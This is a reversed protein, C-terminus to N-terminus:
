KLNKSKDNPPAISPFIQVDSQLSGQELKALVNRLVPISTISERRTNGTKRINQTINSYLYSCGHPKLFINNVSM